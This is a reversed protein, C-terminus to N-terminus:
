EYDVYKLPLEFHERYKKMYADHADIETKFTGLYNREGNIQIHANFTGNTSKKVGVMLGSKKNSISLGHIVNERDTVWELNEVNNNQPNHDKHNVSPKNHPNDIFSEAVSRHVPKNYMKGNFSIKFTPYGKTSLYPILVREGRKIFGTNSVFYLGNTGKVERWIEGDIEKRFPVPRKIYNLKHFYSGRCKNNCYLKQPLGNIESECHKCKKM